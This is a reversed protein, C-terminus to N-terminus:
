LNIGVTAAERQLAEKKSRMRENWERITGMLSAHVSVVQSGFRHLLSDRNEQLQAEAARKIYRAEDQAYLYEQFLVALRGNLITGNFRYAQTFRIIAARKGQLTRPAMSILEREISVTTRAHRFWNVIAARILDQASPWFRARWGQPPLGGLVIKGDRELDTELVRLFAVFADAFEMFSAEFASQVSAVKLMSERGIADKQLAYQHQFSNGLTQFEARTGLVAANVASETRGCWDEFDAVASRFPAYRFSNSALKGGIGGAMGGVLAGAVAGAPTFFAGIIAGAKAGAFTGAGVGVIDMGINKAARQFTTKDAILLKTERYSSFALTIIPFHFSPDFVDSIGNVSQYTLEHIQSSDLDKLGHVLPDKVSSAVQEGTYIPIGHHELLFAKVGSLGEKIQVPHGDVLLDWVPQNSTAAFTVHHGAAELASAAKQETVYGTLREFWGDATQASAEFFHQSVYDHVSPLGHIHAATSEKIADLVTPDIHQVAELVPLGSLVGDVVASGINPSRTEVRGQQFSDAASTSKTTLFNRALIGGSRNGWCYALPDTQGTAKSTWSLQTPVPVQQLALSRNKRISERRLFGIVVLVASLVVISILVIM